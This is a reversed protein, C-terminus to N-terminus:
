KKEVQEQVTLGGNEKLYAYLEDLTKFSTGGWQAVPFNQIPKKQIRDETFRICETPLLVLSNDTTVMDSAFMSSDAPIGMLIYTVGMSIDWEQESSADYHVNGIEGGQDSIVKITGLKIQPNGKFVKTIKIASWTLVAGQKTRYCKQQVVVGEFIFTTNKLAAQNHALQQAPSLRINQAHSFSYCSILIVAIIKKITNM